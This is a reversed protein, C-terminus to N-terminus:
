FDGEGRQAGAREKGFNAMAASLSRREDEDEMNGTSVNIGGRDFSVFCVLGSVLMAVSFRSIESHSLDLIELWSMLRTFFSPNVFFSSDSIKGLSSLKGVGGNFIPYSENVMEDATKGRRDM